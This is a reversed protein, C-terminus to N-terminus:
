FSNTFVRFHENCKACRMARYDSNRHYMAAHEAPPLRELSTGICTLCRWSAALRLNLLDKLQGAPTLIPQSTQAEKVRHHEGCNSCQMVTHNQCPKYKALADRLQDLSPLTVTPRIPPSPARTVPPASRAPTKLRTSGTRVWTDRDDRRRAPLLEQAKTLDVRSLHGCDVCREVSWLQPRPNCVLTNDVM